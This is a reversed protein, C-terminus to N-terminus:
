IYSYWVLTNLFRYGVQTVISENEGKHEVRLPLKQFRSLDSPLVLQREAGPSSVQLLSNLRPNSTDDAESAVDRKCQRNSARRSVRGMQKTYLLLAGVEIGVEFSVEGAADTGLLADMELFMM